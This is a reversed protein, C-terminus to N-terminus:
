SWSKNKHLGQWSYMSVRELTCQVRSGAFVLLLSLSLSLSLVTCLWRYRAPTQATLASSRSVISKSNQSCSDAASRGTALLSYLNCPAGWFCCVTGSHTAIHHTTGFLWECATSSKSDKRTCLSSLFSSLNTRYIHRTQSLLVTRQCYKPQSRM